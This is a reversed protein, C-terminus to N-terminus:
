VPPGLLPPYYLNPGVEVEWLPAGDSVRLALVHSHHYFNGATTAYVVGDHVVPAALVSPQVPHSWLRTGDTSRLAEIAQTGLYVTRGVVTPLSAGNGNMEHTWRSAGTRGDLAYLTAHQVNSTYLEEGVVVPPQLGDGLPARWLLAGDAARYAALGNSEVYVVGGAVEPAQTNIPVAQPQQWRLSGDHAKLALLADAAAVYLTDGALTPPAAALQRPATQWRLAGDHAGLAVQAGDVAGGYVIDGQVATLIPEYPAFPRMWVPAGDSARVAFVAGHHTVISGAGGYLIGDALLLSSTIGAYAYTWRAAGTRADFAYVQGMDHLLDPEDVYLVGQDLLPACHPDGGTTRQWVTAGTDARLALVAGASSAIYVLSTPGGITTVTDPVPDCAAFGASLLLGLLALRVLALCSGQWGRRVRATTPLATKPLM